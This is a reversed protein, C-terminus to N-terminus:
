ALKQQGYVIKKEISRAKAIDGQDNKTKIKDCAICLTQINDIDWQEGGIAIPVVHDGILKSPDSYEVIIPKNSLVKLNPYSAPYLKMHELMKEPDDYFGNTCESKNKPQEKCHNCTFNDRKFAELRLQGWGYIVQKQYEETCDTSCCTWDKRRTWDDKHKECVPCLKNKIKDHWGAPMIIAYQERQKVM